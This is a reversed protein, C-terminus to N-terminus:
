PQLSEEASRGGVTIIVEEIAPFQLLTKNIQERLTIVTASGALSAAEEDLDVHAIGEEVTLNNLQLDSPIATSLFDKEIDNPGSFLMRLAEEPNWLNPMITREVPQVMDAYDATGDIMMEQNIFYLNVIIDEGYTMASEDTVDPEPMVPRGIKSGVFTVVIILIALAVIAVATDKSM